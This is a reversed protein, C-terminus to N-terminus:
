GKPNQVILEGFVNRDPLKERARPRPQGGDWASSFIKFLDWKKSHPGMGCVVIEHTGMAFARALPTCTPPIGTEHETVEYVMLFSPKRATPLHVILTMVRPLKPEMDMNKEIFESLHQAQAPYRTVV